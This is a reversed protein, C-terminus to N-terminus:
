EVVFNAARVIGGWRGQEAAVFKGLDAPSTAEPVAAQARFTERVRADQLVKATLESLMRVTDPPTGAPAHLAFWNGALVDVGLERLTPTSPMLELRKDAALGLLKVQGGKAAADAGGATLLMTDVQGGQVALLGPSQGSFPVHLMEIGVSRM